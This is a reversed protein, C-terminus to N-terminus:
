SRKLHKDLIKKVTYAISPYEEADRLKELAEKDKVNVQIHTYKKEKAM